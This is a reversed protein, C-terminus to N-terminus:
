PVILDVSVAIRAAAASPREAHLLGDSIAGRSVTAETLGAEPGILAVVSTCM